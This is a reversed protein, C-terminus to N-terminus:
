QFRKGNSIMIFEDLSTRPIKWVHGIRFAKLEGSSLLRYVTNRGIYLLEMVDEVTLIEHIEDYLLIVVKV